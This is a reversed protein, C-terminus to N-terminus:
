GHNGGDRAFIGDKLARKHLGGCARTRSVNNTPWDESQM